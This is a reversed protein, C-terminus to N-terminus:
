ETKSGLLAIIGDAYSAVQWPQEKVTKTAPINLSTTEVLSGTVTNKTPTKMKWRGRGAGTCDVINALCFYEVDVMDWGDSTDPM